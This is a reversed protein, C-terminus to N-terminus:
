LMDKYYHYLWGSIRDEMVPISRDPKTEWPLTRVGTLIVSSFGRSLVILTM